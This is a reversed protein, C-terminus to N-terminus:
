VLILKYPSLFAVLITLRCPWRRPFSKFTTRGLHLIVTSGATEVKLTQGLIVTGIYHLKTCSYWCKPPGRAEMKMTLKKSQQTHWIFMTTTIFLGSISIHLSPHTMNRYSKMRFLAPVSWSKICIQYRYKYEPATHIHAICTLFSRYMAHGLDSLTKCYVHSSNQVANAARLKKCHLMKSAPNTLLQSQSKWISGVWYSGM